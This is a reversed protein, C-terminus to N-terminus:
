FQPEASLKLAQLYLRSEEDKFLNEVNFLLICMTDLTFHPQYNRDQLFGYLGAAGTSAKQLEHASLKAMGRGHRPHISAFNLAIGRSSELYALAREPM